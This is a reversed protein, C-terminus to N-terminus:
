EGFNYGLTIYGFTNINDQAGILGFGRRLAEESVTADLAFGGFRMGLGLTVLGDHTAPNIGGVLLFSNPRTTNAETSTGAGGAGESEVKTKGLSRYYGARGALWDTFWWEGGVNIVPLAFYTAKFTATTGPAPPTLELKSRASQVSLGGALYFTPTRYEGGAGVAYALASAKESPLTAATLTAPAEDEKPEASVIAIMGYPVFNFKNSMKFKGRVNFQIETATASYKGGSGAGGVPTNTINDTAKDLRISASADVSSGSGMDYNMGLRFGFLRSSAETETSTGPAPVTTKTDANSNGYMFGFGVDLAGMDYATVLEWVNAVGPIAQAGGNRRVFGPLGPIGFGPSAAGALLGGVANVASPDYSLIMGFSWERNFAFAIGANQQGYGNNGTSLGTLTGGGVNMWAYDKYMAQYSPNLLMLAPDDMIFPNLVLGSGAQSGGMAIQRAIGGNKAQSFASGAVIAIVFLTTALNKLM